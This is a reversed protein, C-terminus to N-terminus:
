SGTSCGCDSSAKETKEEIKFEVVKAEATEGSPGCTTPGCLPECCEGANEKAEPEAIATKEETGM